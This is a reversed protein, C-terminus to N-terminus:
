DIMPGSGDYKKPNRPCGPPAALHALWGNMGAKFRAHCLPCVSHTAVAKICTKAAIHREIDEARVAEKCRPCERVLYRNDCETTLHQQLTAIETVQDCLPCPCLMPCARIFHIDLSAEIFNENFEGCFQCTKSAVDCRAPSVGSTALKDSTASPDVNDEGNPLLEDNTEVESFYQDGSVGGTLKLLHQEVVAWQATKLGELSGRSVGPAVLLLKAFLASAVDRVEGNSHRLCPLVVESLLVGAELSRSLKGDAGYHEVLSDLVAVRATHVKYSVPQQKRRQPDGILSEVVPDLASKSIAMIALEARERVRNNNDGLRTVLNSLAPSLYSTLSSLPPVGELYDAIAQLADCSAVVVSTSVDNLGRAPLALYSLLLETVNEAHQSLAEFVAPTILARIAAERLKAKRSFLCVCCISGFVREFIKAETPVESRVSFDFINEGSLTMITRILLQERKTKGEVLETTVATADSVLGTSGHERNNLHAASEDFNYFGTGVAPIEDFSSPPIANNLPPHFPPSCHNHPTERKAELGLSVNRRMENQEELMNSLKRTCRSLHNVSISYSSKRICDIREKLQKASIYDEKEVAAVKEQELLHIRKGAGELSPLTSRLIEALDYDETAVAHEKVRVLEAMLRATVADVEGFDESGSPALASKSPLPPLMDELPAEVVEGVTCIRTSTDHPLSRVYRGHGTLAVIGVQNFTNFCSKYPTSIVLKVFVCAQHIKITKLERVGTATENAPSFHVYGLRKFKSNKYSMMANPHLNGDVAEAVFVEIRTPVYSEHCLVRIYSLEVEGDFDFGLEQPYTCSRSSQWGISAQAHRRLSSAPFIGEESSCYCLFMNLRCGYKSESPFGVKEM